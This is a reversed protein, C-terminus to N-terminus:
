RGAQVPRQEGNCVKNQHTYKGFVDTVWLPIWVTTWTMSIDGDVRLSFLIPWLLFAGVFATFSLILWFRDRTSM